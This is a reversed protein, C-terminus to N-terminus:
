RGVAPPQKGRLRRRKHGGHSAEDKAVEEERLRNLCPLLSGVGLGQKMSAAEQEGRMGEAADDGRREGAEKSSGACSLEPGM